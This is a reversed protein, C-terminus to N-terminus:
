CSTDNKKLAKADEAELNKVTRRRVNDLKDNMLKIVHFHDFVIKADPLNDGFWKAFGSSMDMAVAEIKAKSTKLRKGFDKLADGGKGDGVHLVAGTELDRVITKYKNKGTYIEDVGLIRVDALRVHAHKKELHKKEVDKVTRWDLDFYEALASISMDRRLEILTRELQKTIRSTNSSLFHYTEMRYAECDHCKVRHAAVKLVTHLSGFKSAKIERQKVKTATVNGSGCAPCKFTGEARTIYEEYRNGVRQSRQHTFGKIGFAHSLDSSHM